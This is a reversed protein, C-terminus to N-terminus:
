EYKASQEEAVRLSEDFFRRARKANGDLVAVLAFTFARETKGAAAFFCSLDFVRQRQHNSLPCPQTPEEYDPTSRLHAELDAVSIGSSREAALALMLNKEAVTQKPLHKVVAERIRDHYTEVVTEGHSETVRVFHGTRLKALLGPEQSVRDIAEYARPAPMPRGAVAFLELLRRTDDPLRCVRSWIVEDLELSRAAVTADGQVQQALEWVFFPWGGSEHTIRDAYLRTEADDGDLLM